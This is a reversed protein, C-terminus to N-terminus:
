VEVVVPLILPRHRTREYVIGAMKEKIDEQILRRGTVHVEGLKQMLEDLAIRCEDLVDKLREDNHLFGRAVLEPPAVTRGNQADVTVVAIFIGDGALQQRDRLVIGEEDGLEFGDVFVMGAPVQGVIEANEADLELIDGNELIMIDEDRLGSERALQAHYYQHRYEGHVPVFYQPRLLNIMMRLDERAAHGSVHVGSGEGYIVSAGSKLLRNVTSMVSVENGPIAKASIVVTDGEHLAVQSHDGFAMRTLASLPEGQSGTSLVLIEEPRYDDIAALKIM